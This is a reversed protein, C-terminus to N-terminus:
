TPRSSLGPTGPTAPWTELMSPQPVPAASFAAAPVAAAARLRLAAAVRASAAARYYAATLIGTFFVLYLLFSAKSAIFLDDQFCSMFVFGLFAARYGSVIGSGRPDLRADPPRLARWIQWLFVLLAALALLGSEALVLAFLNHPKVLSPRGDVYWVRPLDKVIRVTRAWPYLLGWGGGLVPHEVGYRVATELSTRRSEVSTDRAGGVGLVFRELSFSQSLKWAIPILVFLAVGGLAVARRVRGPARRALLFLIVLLFALLAARALTTLLGLFCLALVIASLAPRVRSILNGAAVAAVLLIV